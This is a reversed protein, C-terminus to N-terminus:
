ASPLAAGQEAQQAKWLPRYLKDLDVEGPWADCTEWLVQTLLESLPWTYNWALPGQVPFLFDWVLM